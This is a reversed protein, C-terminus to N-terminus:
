RGSSDPLMQSFTLLLRFSDAQALNRATTDWQTVFDKPNDGPTLFPQLESFTSDNFRFYASVFREELIAAGTFLAISSREVHDPPMLLLEGDGEYFAGTVHGMVDKTFAITGDDLSIHVSARNFSADRVHYVRAPDLGVRGLDLYLSEASVHPAASPTPGQKVQCQSALSCAALSWM